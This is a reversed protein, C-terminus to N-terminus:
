LNIHVIGLNLIDKVIGFAELNRTVPCILVDCDCTEVPGILNIIHMKVDRRNGLWGSHPYAKNTINIMCQKQKELSDRKEEIAKTLKPANGFSHELSIFIEDAMRDIDINVIEPDGGHLEIHDHFFTYHVKYLNCLARLKSDAFMKFYELKWPSLYVQMVQNQVEDNESKHNFLRQYLVYQDNTMVLVVDGKKKRHVAWVKENDKFFEQLEIFELQEKEIEISQICNKILKSGEVAVDQSSAFVLLDHVKTNVQWSCLVRDQQLMFNIYNSVEEKQLFKAKLNGINDLRTVIDKCKKDIKYRYEDVIEQTKGKLVVLEDKVEIEIDPNKLDDFFDTIEMVQLKNKQVKLIEDFVINNGKSVPNNQEVILYFALLTACNYYFLSSFNYIKACALPKM